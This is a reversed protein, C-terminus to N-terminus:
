SKIPAVADAHQSRLIKWTAVTFCFSGGKGWSTGWSNDAYLMWEDQDTGEVEVGRLLFEHGGRIQGTACVIAEDGQPKDFGSYWPVGVIVPGRQLAHLLGTVTFAWGYSDILGEAKAEKAVALGTSGTDIPPYTGSVSDRRTGGSYLKVALTEDFVAGATDDACLPACALAGAMANGTCSGLEGQDLIPSHRAHLVSQFSAGAPAEIAYDRSRPDHAIHRGLRRANPDTEPIHARFTDM